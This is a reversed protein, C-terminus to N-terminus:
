NSMKVLDQTTHRGNMQNYFTNMMQNQNHTFENPLSPGFTNAANLTSQMSQQRPASMAGTQFNNQHQLPKNNTLQNHRHQNNNNSRQQYNYQHNTLSLAANSPSLPFGLNQNNPVTPSLKSQQHQHHQANQQQQQESKLKFYQNPNMKHNHLNNLFAAQQSNHTPSNHPIFGPSPQMNFPSRSGNRYQNHGASNNVQQQIQNLHNTPKNSGRNNFQLTATGPAPTAPTNNNSNGSGFSLNSMQPTLSSSPSTHNSGPQSINNTNKRLRDAQLKQVALANYLRNLKYYYPFSEVYGCYSDEGKGSKDGTTEQKKFKEGKELKSNNPPSSMTQDIITNLESKNLYNNTENLQKKQISSKQNVM